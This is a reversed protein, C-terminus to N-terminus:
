KAGDNIEEFYIWFICRTNNFNIDETDFHKKVLRKVERVFADSATWNAGGIYISNLHAQFRVVNKTPRDDILFDVYVSDKSVVANLETLFAM